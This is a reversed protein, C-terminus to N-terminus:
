VRSPPNDSLCTQTDRPRAKRKRSAWAAAGAAALLGLASFPDLAGGGRDAPVSANNGRQSPERVAVPSGTNNALAPKTPETGTPQMREIAQQRLRELDRQVVEQGQRELALRKINNRNIKWRQYEGDNELVIFSTFQTVISFEEGLRVVEPKARERSGHRDADRLLQNIRHWAWMRPVEPNAAETGPLDVDVTQEFARGNIEAQLRIKASGAGKYRGYIRVPTGHFLNPVQKPEVDYVDGGQFTVRVNSAAPRLLKRNLASALRQFDDDRSLFAALGGSDEAIQTLLPRDIENGVGICFVRAHGPRTKILRLLEERDGPDTLGDSVIVVNLQRDPGGYRYALQLAPQLVTGGRAVQRSLYDEAKKQGDPGGAHLTKFLATPQVNFSILEFRDSPRLQKVMGAIADRSLALKSDYMMSGSVDLLFVYDM